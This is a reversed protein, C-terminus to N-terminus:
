ALLHWQELHQDARTGKPRDDTLQWLQLANRPGTMDAILPIADVIRAAHWLAHWETPTVAHRDRKCNVLVRGRTPHAAFLDFVGKSGAARIVTWGHAIFRARTRREHAVGTAYATTM